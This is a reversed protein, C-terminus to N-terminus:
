FVIEFEFGWFNNSDKISLNNSVNRKIIQQSGYNLILNVNTDPIKVGVGFYLDYFNLSGLKEDKYKIIKGNIKKGRELLLKRMTINKLSIGVLFKFKENNFYYGLELFPHFVNYIPSIKTKFNYYNIKPYNQNNENLSINGIGVGAIIELNNKQYAIGLSLIEVDSSRLEMINSTEIEDELNSSSNYGENIFLDKNTLKIEGFKNYFSIGLTRLSINIGDKTKKREFISKGKEGSQANSLLSILLSTIVFIRTTKRM